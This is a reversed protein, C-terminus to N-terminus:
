MDRVASGLRRRKEKLVDNVDTPPQAAPAKNPTGNKESKKKVDM